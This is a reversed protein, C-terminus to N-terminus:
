KFEAKGDLQELQQCISDQLQKFWSTIESQHVSMIQNPMHIFLCLYLSIFDLNPTPELLYHLKSHM